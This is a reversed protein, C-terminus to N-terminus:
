RDDDPVIRGTVADVLIEVLRGEPTRIELSYLARADRCDIEIEILTGDVVQRVAELIASLPLLQRAAVAALAREHDDSDDCARHDDDAWANSLGPAVALAVLLPIALLPLRM